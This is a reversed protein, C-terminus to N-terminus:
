AFILDWWEHLLVFRVSLTLRWKDAWIWAWVEREEEQIDDKEPEHRYKNSNHRKNCIQLGKNFNIYKWATTWKYNAPLGAVGM